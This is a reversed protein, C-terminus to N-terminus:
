QQEKENKWVWYIRGEAVGNFMPCPELGIDKNNANFEKIARVQGKHPNGAFAHLDDFYILSFNGLKPKIAELATVTSTYYDCDMYVFSARKIKSWDFKPLSEEYFGEVLTFRSEPVNDALLIKRFQNAGGVDFTGKHWSPHKDAANSSEPLGVFSDFLYMHYRDNPIGAGYFSKLARYFRKASTGKFCGFELYDGPEIKNKHQWEQLWRLALLEKNSKRVKEDIKRLVDRIM